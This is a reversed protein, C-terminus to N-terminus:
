HQSHITTPSANTILIMSDYLQAPPQFMRYSAPLLRMLFSYWEGLNGMFCYELIQRGLESEEPIQSFDLWCSTFGAEKASKALPNHSYFVQNTRKGSPTPLNCKTKYFDTGIVYYDDDLHDQLLKGMGDYSEWKAVHSNHGTIFIKDKGLSQEQQLIWQVNEAMFADRLDAGRNSDVSMQTNLQFHQILMDAAHISVQTDERKELQAKAQMIIEARETDDYAENWNEGVMLNELQTTDLHNTKCGDVLLDFSNKFRQMDFGYFRLDEGDPANENYQRMYAILEAIEDTKYIRFGMADAAEQATGKGGHIYRNVQECGGFDAEIAFARVGNHEVLNRFVELKLQQFEANGHTAEGLAIVKVNTPISIKTVEKAYAKLQETNASNGTDFGGFHMFLLIVAFLIMLMCLLLYRIFHHRKTKM